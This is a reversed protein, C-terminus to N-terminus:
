HRSRIIEYALGRVRTGGTEIKLGPFGGFWATVTSSQKCSVSMGHGMREGKKQRFPPLGGIGGLRKEEM